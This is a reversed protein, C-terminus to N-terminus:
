AIGSLISTLYVFVIKLHFHEDSYKHLTSMQLGTKRSSNESFHFQLERFM